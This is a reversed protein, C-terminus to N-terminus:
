TLPVKTPDTAPKVPAPEPGKKQKGDTGQSGSCGALGSLLLGGLLSTLLWTKM